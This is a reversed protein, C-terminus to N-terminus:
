VVVAKKKKKKEKRKLGDMRAKTLTAYALSFRNLDKSGVMTSLKTHKGNTARV